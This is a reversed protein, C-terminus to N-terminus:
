KIILGGAPTPGYVLPGSLDGVQRRRVVGRNARAWEKIGQRMEQIFANLTQSDHEVIKARGAVYHFLLM